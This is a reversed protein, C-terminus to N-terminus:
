LAPHIPLTLRLCCVVASAHMLSATCPTHYKFSCPLRSLRPCSWLRPPKPDKPNRAFAPIPKPSFPRPAPLQPWPLLLCPLISLRPLGRSLSVPLRRRCPFGALHPPSLNPHPAPLLTPQPSFPPTCAASPSCPYPPCPLPHASQLLRCAGVKLVRQRPWLQRCMCQVPM